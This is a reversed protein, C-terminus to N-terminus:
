PQYIHRLAFNTGLNVVTANVCQDVRVKEAGEVDGAGYTLTTPMIGGTDLSTISFFGYNLIDAMTLDCPAKGTNALALRLAEVQIMAEVVGHPYMAHSLAYATANFGGRYTNQLTKCFTIGTGTDTWGPYSGAVILGNGTSGFNRVFTAGHSPSCLGFQLTYNVGWTGIGLSDAQAMLQGSCYTTMAGLSLSWNNSQAYTLAATADITAGDTFTKYNTDVTYGIGTLYTNLQPIILSGVNGFSNNTMYGVKPKTYNEGAPHTVNWGNPNITSNGTIFWDAIAACQDTYLPYNMFITRPPTMLYAGSAQSTAGCHDNYLQTIMAKAIGSGSIRFMKLGQAKLTAYNSQALSASTGQDDMSVVQLTINAPFSPGWPSVKHNANVWQAYDQFADLVAVGDEPYAVTLPFSGGILLTSNTCPVEEEEGTCGALVPLVGLMVILLVIAILKIKIM